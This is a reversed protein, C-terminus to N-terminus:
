DRRPHSAPLRSIRCAVRKPRPAYLSPRIGLVGAVQPGPHPAVLDHGAPYDAPWWLGPPRLDLTTSSCGERVGEGIARSVM